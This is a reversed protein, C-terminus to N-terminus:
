TPRQDVGSSLSLELFRPTRSVARRIGQYGGELTRIAVARSRHHAESIRPHAMGDLAVMLIKFPPYQKNSGRFVGFRAPELQNGECADVRSTGVKDGEPQLWQVNGHIM